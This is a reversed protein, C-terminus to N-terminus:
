EPTYDEVKSRKRVLILGKMNSRQNGSNTAKQCAWDRYQDPKITTCTNQASHFAPRGTKTIETVDGTKTAWITLTAQKEAEKTM